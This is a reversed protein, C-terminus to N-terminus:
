TKKNQKQKQKKKKKNSLKSKTVKDGSNTNRQTTNKTKVYLNFELQNVKNNNNNM